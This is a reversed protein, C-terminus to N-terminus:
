RNAIERIAGIKANFAARLADAEDAAKKVEAERAVLRDARNVLDADRKQLEVELRQLEKERAEVESERRELVKVAARHRSEGAAIAQARADAYRTREAEKALVEDARKEKVSVRSERENLAASAEDLKAQEAKLQALRSQFKETDAIVALLNDTAEVERVNLGPM